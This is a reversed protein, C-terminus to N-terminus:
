RRYAPDVYGPEFGPPSSANRIKSLLKSCNASPLSDSSPALTAPQSQRRARSSFPGPRNKAATADPSRWVSTPPGRKKSSVLYWRSRPGTKLNANPGRDNMTTASGAHARCTSRSFESLKSLPRRESIRLGIRPWPRMGASGSRQFVRRRAMAGPKWLFHSSWVIAVKWSHVCTKTPSRSALAAAAAAAAADSSSAAGASEDSSLGGLSGSSTASQGRHFFSPKQGDASSTTSMSSRKHEVDRSMM